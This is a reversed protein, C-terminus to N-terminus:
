CSYINAKNNNQTQNNIKLVWFEMRAYYKWKESGM